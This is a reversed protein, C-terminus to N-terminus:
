CMVRELEAGSPEKFGTWASRSRHAWWWTNCLERGIERDSRPVRRTARSKRGLRECCRAHFERKVRSRENSLDHVLSLVAQPKRTKVRRFVGLREDLHFHEQTKKEFVMGDKHKDNSGSQILGSKSSPWLLQDM